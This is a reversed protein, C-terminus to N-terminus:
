RVEKISRKFLWERIRKLDHEEMENLVIQEQLFDPPDLNLSQM